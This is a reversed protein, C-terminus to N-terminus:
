THTLRKVAHSSGLRFCVAVGLQYQAMLVATRPNGIEYQVAKRSVGVTSTLLGFDRAPIIFQNLVPLAALAASAGALNGARLLNSYTTNLPPINAEVATKTAEFTRNSVITVHAITVSKSSVPSYAKVSIAMSLFAIATPLLVRLYMEVLTCNPTHINSKIPIKVHRTKFM